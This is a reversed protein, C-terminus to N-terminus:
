ICLYQMFLSYFRHPALSELMPNYTFRSNKGSKGTNSIYKEATKYIDSKEDIEGYFICKTKENNLKLQEYVWILYYTFDSATQYAFRNYLILKGSRLVVLDMYGSFVYVHVEDEKSGKNLMLLYEIFISSHHRFTAKTYTSELLSLLNFNVAYLNYSDLNKIYDYFPTERPKLLNQTKLYDSVSEKKFFGSPVLMSSNQCFVVSISSTPIDFMEEKMIRQLFAQYDEEHKPQYIAFALYRNSDKDLLCAAILDERTELSLHLNKDKLLFKSDGLSTSKNKSASIVTLNAM